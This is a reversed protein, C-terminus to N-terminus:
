ATITKTGTAVLLYGQRCEQLEESSMQKMWSTLARRLPHVDPLFTLAHEAAVTVETVATLGASEFEPRLSVIPEEWGYAWRHHDELLRRGARYAVCAANPVMAIVKRRSVRCQERLMRCREDFPFHELLGSSWVCDMEGDKFPLRRGADACLALLDVGLSAACARTFAVNDLSVDLAVVHRGAQALLLCTEGSGSGLELVNEGPQTHLLVPQAWEPVHNSKVRRVVAEASRSSSLEAQWETGTLPRRKRGRWMMILGDEPPRQDYAIPHADVQDCGRALLKKLDRAEPWREWPPCVMRGWQSRHKDIIAVWGGPRAVRVMEEIAAPPDPSHELAEVSFVVDFANSPCPITELSGQVTHIGEPVADLFERSIDVGTCDCEPHAEQIVRLFRGKGCGVELVRDRSRALQLVAQARGDSASVHTPYVAASRDFFNVVRLRHADLYYKVAWPIEADRFYTAGAGYSGFFGGTPEQHHELWTLALDAPEWLGLQYWCVALQALGTSCVWPVGEYGRVGGDATQLESLRALVPRAAEPRGLEILAELEYALFHTLTSMRLFDPHKQYFDACAEAASRYDPRNLTEAAQILPPLAYLHVTEPITGAYRPSFGERGCGRMQRCLHDAAREACNLAEPLRPAAALLGRLVQGTDFAYPLGDHNTYGGDARQVCMLWRVWQVALDRQGYDLLTPILYGTVEPYASSHRSHVRVGGGPVAHRRLWSLAKAPPSLHTLTVRHVLAAVHRDWAQIRRLAKRGLDKAYRLRAANVSVIRIEKSKQWVFRTGPM